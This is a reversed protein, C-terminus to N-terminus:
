RPKKANFGWPNAAKKNVAAGFEADRGARDVDLIARKRTGVGDLFAFDRLSERNDICRGADRSASPEIM